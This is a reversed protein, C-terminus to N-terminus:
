RITLRFPAAGRTMYIRNYTIQGMVAMLYDDLLPADPEARFTVYGETETLGLSTKSLKEEYILGPPLKSFRQMLNWLIINMEVPGTYKNRVVHLKVTFSKGREISVVKPDAELIIDSGESVSAVATPVQLFSRGGAQGMPAFPTAIREIELSRGGSSTTMARGGVLIPRADPKADPRATIVITGQTLHAPIASEHAFMGEPLGRVFLRVPGRFGNRREVTVLATVSEGPGAPMRDDDLVLAFDEQQHRAAFFYFRQPGGFYNADRVHVEYHGDRPAIWEVRPDKSVPFALGDVTQGLTNVMDDQAELLRGSVDRIEMLADLSSGWRRAQVEFEFREGAKAPFRYRDVEGDSLIRGNVGGPIAIARIGPSDPEIETALETIGLEVRNSALQFEFSVKADAPIEVEWGQLGDLNFGDFSLKAKQGPVVVPPFASNIVPGPLVSLAYWWKDKGSHYRAERLRLYYTGARQFSYFLEPDETLSDDASALEAGAVDHLSLIIDSFDRELQPVPRQLRAAHVLFAIRDGAAADFRYMDLDADGDLHGNVTMGPKIPRADAQSNNPEAEGICEGSAVLLNALASLSGKTLIRFGYIGPATDAAVTVKISLGEREFPQRKGAPLKTDGLAQWEVITATVGPRDFLIRTSERLNYRGTLMVDTTAGRAVAGPFVTEIRPYGRQGWLSLAPALLLWCSAFLRM